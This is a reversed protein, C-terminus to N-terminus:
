FNIGSAKSFSEGIAFLFFAPFMEDLWVFLFVFFVHFFWNNSAWQGKERDPEITFTYLCFQYCSIGIICGYFEVRMSMWGHYARPHLRVYRATIPRKLVHTVVIYRDYNGRFLQHKFPLFPINSLGLKPQKDVGKESWM